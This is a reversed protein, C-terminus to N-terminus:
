RRNRCQLREFLWLPMHSTKVVLTEESPTPELIIETKDGMVEKLADLITTGVSCLDDLLNFISSHFWNMAFYCGAQTYFLGWNQDFISLACFASAQSVFCISCHGTYTATHSRSQKYKLENQANKIRNQGM